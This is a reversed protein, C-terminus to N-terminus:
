GTVVCTSQGDRRRVTVSFLLQESAIPKPIPDRGQSSPLLNIEEEDGVQDKYNFLVFSCRICM